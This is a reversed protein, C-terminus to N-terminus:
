VTKNDAKRSTTLTQVGYVQHESMQIHLPNQHRYVTSRPATKSVQQQTCLQAQKDGNKSHACHAQLHGVLLFHVAGHDVYEHHKCPPSHCYRMAVEDGLAVGRLSMLRRRGSSINRNQIRQGAETLVKTRVNCLYKAGHM